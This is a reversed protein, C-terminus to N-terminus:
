VLKAFCLDSKIANMWTLAYFCVHNFLLVDAIMRDIGLGGPITLHSCDHKKIKPRKGFELGLVGPFLYSQEITIIYKDSRLFSRWKSNIQSQVELFM